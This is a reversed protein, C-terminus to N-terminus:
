GSFANPPLGKIGVEVEFLAGALGEVCDLSASTVFMRCLNEGGFAISTINKAPMPISDDLSGDTHFRSIRAGGWHAIWVGGESDTAMGDPYGWEEPFRLWIRRNSLSGGKALDFAYVVRALTDTHYLTQYDPSFTPGNTVSYGDDVRSWRLDPDLRYLAGSAEEDRDDKSGAWIRGENDAKADNLRNLPRDLEPNCISEINLPDFRLFAFGSKFGAIFGDGNQREIIWGIREPVSWSVVADSALDLRHIKQGFIDVWFLANWGASWVPGEGLIDKDGRSITRIKIM